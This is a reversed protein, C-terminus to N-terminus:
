CKGENIIDRPRYLLFCDTLYNEVDSKSLNFAVGNACVNSQLYINKIPMKEFIKPDISTINNYDLKLTHLKPLNVFSDSHITKIRNYSLDLIELNTMDKFYDKDISEIDSYIISLKRLKKINMSNPSYQRITFNQKLGDDTLVFIARLVNLVFKSISRIKLFEMSDPLGTKFGKCFMKSDPNGKEIANCEADILVPVKIQSLSEAYDDFKGVDSITVNITTNLIWSDCIQSPIKACYGDSKNIIKLFVIILFINLKM